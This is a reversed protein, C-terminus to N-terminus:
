GVFGSNGPGDVVNMAVRGPDHLPGRGWSVDCGIRDFGADSQDGIEPVEVDNAKINIVFM